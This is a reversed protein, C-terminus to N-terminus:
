PKRNSLFELLAARDEDTQEPPAPPPTSRYRSAASPSEPVDEWLREKIFRHLGPAFQNSDKKWEDCRNWAHLASLATKVTPREHQPIRNWEVRCRYKSSRIRAIPLASKWLLELGTEPAPSGTLRAEARALKARLSGLAAEAEAVQRALRNVQANLKDQEKSM